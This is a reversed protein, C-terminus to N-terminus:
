DGMLAALEGAARRRSLDMQFFRDQAHVFGTARAVDERSAGRITPIGLADRALTVRSTLGPLQRTGELVPLSAQLQRYGWVSLGAALLVAAGLTALLVLRWTRRMCAIRTLCPSEREDRAGARGRRTRRCGACEVSPRM